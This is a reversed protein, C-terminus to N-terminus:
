KISKSDADLAQQNSLDIAIMLYYKKFYIYELLCGNTYDNGQDIAIKWIKDFIRLNNKVPQNFFNQGDIM